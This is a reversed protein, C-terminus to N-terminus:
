SSEIQIILVSGDSYYDHYEDHQIQNRFQRMDIEVDKLNGIIQRALRDRESDVNPDIRHLITPIGSYHTLKLGDDYSIAGLWLDQGSNKDIGVHWWRIHSRKMLTGPEQFAMAQPQGNWFLDSVPLLKQKFSALYDGLNLDDRSFTQNEIWGLDLMLPRPSNGLYVVNIAQADYIPSRGPYAKFSLGELQQVANSKIGQIGDDAAEFYHLYNIGFLSVAVLLCSKLWIHRWYLHRALLVFALSISFCTLILQHEKLIIIVNDLPLWTHIGASILYGMVIFQGVGLILGLSSCLTFRLWNVKLTGAVFPTVWALPGLLRSCILLANGRKKMIIRSKAIPRRATPKWRTLSRQAKTGLLAGLFFSYQDGLFGGLLVAAVGWIIGQHLQHGASLFFPVGPVIINIGVIGDLLAGLFLSLTEFM